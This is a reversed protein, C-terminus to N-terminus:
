KRCSFYCTFIILCVPLIAQVLPMIDCISSLLIELVAVCHLLLFSDNNVKHSTMLKQFLKFYRNELEGFEKTLTRRLYGTDLFGGFARLEEVRQM